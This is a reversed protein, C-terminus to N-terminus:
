ASTLMVVYSHQHFLGMAVTVAVTCNGIYLCAQSNSQMAMNIVCSCHLVECCAGVYLLVHCKTEEASCLTCPCAISVISTHKQTAITHRQCQSSSGCALMDRICDTPDCAQVSYRNDEAPSNSVTVDSVDASPGELSATASPGPLLLLPESSSRRTREQLAVVINSCNCWTVSYEDHPHQKRSSTLAHFLCLLLVFSCDPLM